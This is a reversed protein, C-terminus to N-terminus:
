GVWHEYGHPSGAFPCAHKGGQEKSVSACHSKTSCEENNESCETLLKSRSQKLDDSAYLFRRNLIFDAVRDRFDANSHLKEILCKKAHDLSMIGEGVKESTAVYPSWINTSTDREFFPFFRGTYYWLSTQKAQEAPASPPSREQRNLSAIGKCCYSSWWQLIPVDFIIIHQSIVTGSGHRTTRDNRKRVHKVKKVYRKNNINELLFTDKKQSSHSLTVMELQSCSSM